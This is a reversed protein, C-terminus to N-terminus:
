WGAAPTYKMSTGISAIGGICDAADAVVEAAHEGYQHLFVDRTAERFGAWAEGAASFMAGRVAVVDQLPSHTNTHM